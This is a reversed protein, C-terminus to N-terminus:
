AAATSEKNITENLASLMRVANARQEKSLLVFDRAVQMAFDAGNMSKLQAVRAESTNPTGKPM